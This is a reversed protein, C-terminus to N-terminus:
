QLARKSIEYVALTGDKKKRVEVDNGADTIKKIINLLKVDEPSMSQHITAFGGLASM